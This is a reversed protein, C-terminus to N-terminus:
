AKLATLCSFNYSSLTYTSLGFSAASIGCTVWCCIALFSKISHKMEKRDGMMKELTQGM